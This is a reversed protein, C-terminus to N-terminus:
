LGFVIAFLVIASLDTANAIEAFVAGSSAGTARVILKGTSRVYTVAYGSSAPAVIALIKQMGFMDATIPEGGTPYSADFTIDCFKAKMQGIKQPENGLGPIAAISVTM